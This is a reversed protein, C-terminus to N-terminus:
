PLRQAQGLPGRLDRVSAKDEKTTEIWRNLKEEETNIPPLGEQIAQLNSRIAITRKIIGIIGILVIRGPDALHSWHVDAGQRTLEYIITAELM